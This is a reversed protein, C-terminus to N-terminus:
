TNVNFIEIIHGDEFLISFDLSYKDKENTIRLIHNELIKDLRTYYEKDWCGCIYQEDKVLRWYGKFEIFFKSGKMSIRDHNCYYEHIVIDIKKNLIKEDIM